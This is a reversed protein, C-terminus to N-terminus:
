PLFHPEEQEHFVVIPVVAKNRLNEIVKQRGSRRAPSNTLRAWAASALTSAMRTPGALGPGEVKHVSFTRKFFLPARVTEYKM